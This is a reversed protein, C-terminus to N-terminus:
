QWLFSVAFTAHYVDEDISAGGRLKLDLWMHDGIGVWTGVGALLAPKMPGPDCGGTRFDDGTDREEAREAFGLGLEYWNREGSHRLTSGVVAQRITQSEDELSMAWLHGQVTFSAPLDLQLRFRPFTNMEIGAVKVGNCIGGQSEDCVAFRPGRTFSEIAELRTMRASSSGIVVSPVAASVETGVWEQASARAAAGFTCLLAAV